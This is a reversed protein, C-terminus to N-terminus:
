PLPLPHPRTDRGDLDVASRSLCNKDRGIMEEKQFRSAPEGWDATQVRCDAAIAEARALCPQGSILLRSHASLANDAGWRAYKGMGYKGEKGVFM